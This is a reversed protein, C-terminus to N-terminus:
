HRGDSREAAEHDEDVSEAEDPSDDTAEVKQEERDILREAASGEEVAEQYTDDYLRLGVFEGPRHAVGHVHTDGEDSVM